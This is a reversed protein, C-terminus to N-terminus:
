QKLGTCYHYFYHKSYMWSFTWLMLLLFWWKGKMIQGMRSVVPTLDCTLSNILPNQIAHSSGKM